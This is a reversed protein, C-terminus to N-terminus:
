LKKISIQVSFLNDKEIDLPPSGTFGETINSLMMSYWGKGDPYVQVPESSLFDKSYYYIKDLIPKDSTINDLMEENPIMDVSVVKETWKGTPSFYAHMGREDLQWHCVGLKKGQDELKLDEESVADRVFIYKYINDDIKIPNPMYVATTPIHLAGTFGYHYKCNLARFTTFVREIPHIPYPLNKFRIIIEYIQNPNTNLRIPTNSGYTRSDDESMFELKYSNNMLMKQEKSICATMSLTIIGIFILKRYIIM